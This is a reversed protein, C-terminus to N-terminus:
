IRSQDHKSSIMKVPHQLDWKGAMLLHIPGRDKLGKTLGDVAMDRTDCWFWRKVLGTRLAELCYALHYLTGKETPVKLHDSELARFISMSDTFMELVIEYSGSQQLEILRSAPQPGLRVEELFGLLVTAKGLADCQNFLESSWVGRTVHSQKGAVYDLLQIQYKRGAISPSSCHALGIVYGRMVTPDLRSRESCSEKDDPGRFASDAITVLVVPLALPLYVLPIRAKRAFRIVRNLRRLHIGRPNKSARQLASVYVAIDLRTLLIWAAGGLLCLYAAVLLPPLDEDDRINRFSSEPVPRLASAYEHQDLECRRNDKSMLHRIGTHVFSAELKMKVDDGFHKQLLALLWKLRDGPATAEFDDMHASTMLALRGDDHKVYLKEESTTPLIKESRFVGDVRRTFLSPADVLGFGGKLMELVELADSFSAFGDLRRLLMNGSPELGPRGRPLVLSVERRRGTQEEIESFSLGKLFAQSIDLSAIPWGSQVSTSVVMRQGWRTATASYRELSSKENDKFGHVTLRCKLLRSGDSQLKWTFVYRSTVLNRALHRKQRRVACNDIWRQLEALVAAEVVKPDLARLDDDTVSANSQAKSTEIIMRKVGMKDIQLVAVADNSDLLHGPVEYGSVYAMWVCMQLEAMEEEDQSARLRELPFTQGVFNREMAELQIDIETQMRSEQPSSCYGRPLAEAVAYVYHLGHPVEAELSYCADPPESLFSVGYWTELIELDEQSLGPNREEEEEAQKIEDHWATWFDADEHDEDPGEAHESSQDREISRVSQGDDISVTAAREEHNSAADGGGTPQPAADEERCLKVTDQPYFHWQILRCRQWRNRELGLTQEIQLSDRGEVEVTAFGTRDEANWYLIKSRLAGLGLSPLRQVAHAFTGGLCGSTRWHNWGTYLLARLALMNSPTEASDHWGRSSHVKGIVMSRGHVLEATEILVKMAENLGSFTLRGMAHYSHLLFFLVMARRISELSVDLHRGQWRVTVKGHQIEGIDTVQAPGVWGPRDKTPPQRYIEVDEGVRLGLTEGALPTRSSDALAARHEAMAQVAAGVSVERLRHVHRLGDCGTEDILRASGVLDVIQPLLRPTRGFVSQYPTGHGTNLMANKAFQCQAVVNSFPVVIGESHLQATTKHLQKRLIEHHREALWAKKDPPRVILEISWLDAWRKAEDSDMAGEGDWILMAPAGYRRLWQDTMIRLLDTVTKSPTEHIESWKVCEDIMHILIYDAVPVEFENAYFLLDAQLCQNFRISLRATVKVAPAKPAWMRCIRCSDVVEPILEMARSSVGLLSLLNRLQETSAHTWRLHLRRLQKRIVSDDKDNLLRVVQKLDSPGWLQDEDGYSRLASRQDRSRIDRGYRLSRAQGHPVAEQDDPEGVPESPVLPPDDRMIRPDPRRGLARRTGVERPLRGLGEAARPRRFPNRCQDDNTHSPDSMPKNRLCGPCLYERSAVRPFRCQGDIRSHDVHDAPKNRRCGPCESFARTGASQGSGSAGGEHSPFFLHQTDSTFYNRGQWRRRQVLRAIGWALRTALGWTWVQSKSLNEGRLEIHQGNCASPITGCVLGDVYYVLDYDSAWARNERKYKEGQETQAGMQCQDFRAVVTRPHARVKPWPDHIYLTSTCSQENLWDLDDSYQALAIEGCFCGLVLAYQLSAEHGQPNRQRNIHAWGGHPGCIPSMLVVLPKHYQRYRLFANRESALQLDCGTVLDFNKGTRLRLRCCVRSCRAEGGAIECVTMSVQQKSAYFYLAEMCSFLRSHEDLDRFGVDSGILREPAEPFLVSSFLWRSPVYWQEEFAEDEDLPDDESSADFLGGFIEDKGLGALDTGCDDWHDECQLPTKRKPKPALPDKNELEKKKQRERSSTPFSGGTELFVVKKHDLRPTSSDPNTSDARVVTGAQARSLKVLSTAMLRVNTAWLDSCREGQRVRGPRLAAAPVHGRNSDCRCPTSALRFSTYCQTIARIPSGNNDVAGFTCWEHESREMGPLSTLSSIEDCAWSVSSRPGFMWLATRVSNVQSLFKDILQKCRVLKRKDQRSGTSTCLRPIEWVLLGVTRSLHRDRQQPWDSQCLARSCVNIVQNKSYENLLAEHFAATDGLYLVMAFNEDDANLIPLM